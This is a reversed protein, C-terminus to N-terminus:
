RDAALRLLHSGWEDASIGVADLSRSFATGAGFPPLSNAELFYIGRPTVIFDSRSYHRLGLTEHALRALRILEGTEEGTFTGTGAFYAEGSRKAQSDFVSFSAPKLIELPLLAYVPEGRMGEIVGVTAERGSIYEEALVKSSFNFAGKVADWFEVFTRAASVGSSIGSSVPKVIVPPSFTRFAELAERELDPSVELVVHRPVRVDKKGLMEKAALKNMALASAFARSGTFPVGSYELIGQVTGDEGYAGHLANLVADATYLAREPTVPVGRMHWMGERDIFVDVPRYAEKGISELAASGTKLSIDQADIGGRLVLATKM